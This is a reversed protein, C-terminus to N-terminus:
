KKKLSLVMVSYNGNTKEIGYQFPRPFIFANKFVLNTVSLSFFKPCSYLSANDCVNMTFCDVAGRLEASIGM